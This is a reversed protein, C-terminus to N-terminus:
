DGLLLLLQDLSHRLPAILLRELLFVAFEDREQSFSWVQADGVIFQVPHRVVAEIQHCAIRFAVAVELLRIRTNLVLGVRRRRYHLRAVCSRSVLIRELSLFKAFFEPRLLVHTRSGGQEILHQFWSLFLLPSSFHCLFVTSERLVVKGTNPFVEGRNDGVDVRYFRRNIGG